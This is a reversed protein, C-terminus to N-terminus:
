KKIISSKVLRIIVVILTVGGALIMVSGNEYFVEQLLTGLLLAFMGCAVGIGVDFLEKAKRGIMCAGIIMVAAGGFHFVSTNIYSPSFVDLIFAIIFIIMGGWLGITRLALNVTADKKMIQKSSRIKSYIQDYVDQIKSFDADRDFLLKAKQYSQEIKALWADSVDKKKGGDSLNQEVSFNTAALVIFELIDEKTNPIPFSRILAIKQEDNETQGLRFSFERVSNSAERGRIQYGCSPCSVAFPHLIEGCNPCKHLEGDYVTKRKRQDEAVATGCASCFKDGDKLKQGCNICFAM